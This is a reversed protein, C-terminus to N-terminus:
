RVLQLYIGCHFPYSMMIRLNANKAVVTATVAAAPIAVDAFAAVTSWITAAHSRIFL